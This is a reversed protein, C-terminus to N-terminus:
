KDSFIAFDERAPQLVNAPLLLTVVAGGGPRGSISAAGGHAQIVAAVFALGLGHGPSGKSKVFREFARGAIEPAFGPGNDEIVLEAMGHQSRLRIAIKRGVPLHTLENELLNEVVRTMLSLDAHVIVGGEVDLALEHHREAMAPQYVDALQRVVDSLDVTNRDLHLAGAQAEALDLTTNLLHLLRDLGEIAEGVDERWNANPEKCLASELTGRISTVPGKMNHAVADTVSRLQSVSSQIRDLMRNFTKALRSIEDSRSPEPLRKSLEDSGIGAVTETINEVRVLTRRASMYSILFGM